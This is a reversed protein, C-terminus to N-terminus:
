KYIEYSNRIKTLNVYNKAPVGAAMGSGTGGCSQCRFVVCQGSLRQVIGVFCPQYGGSSSTGVLAHEQSDLRHHGAHHHWAEDMQM